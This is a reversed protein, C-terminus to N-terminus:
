KLFLTFGGFWNKTVSFLYDSLLQFSWIKTILFTQYFFTSVSCENSKVVRKIEVRSCHEVFNFIHLSAAPIPKELRIKEYISFIYQFMALLINTGNAIKIRWCKLYFFLLFHWLNRKLQKKERENGGVWMKSLYIGQEVSSWSLTISILIYHDDMTNM